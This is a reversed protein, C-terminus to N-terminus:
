PAANLERIVRALLGPVLRDGCDALASAVGHNSCRLYPAAAQADGGVLDYSGDPTLVYGADRGSIARLTVAM